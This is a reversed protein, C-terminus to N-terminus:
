QGPVMPNEIVLGRDEALVRNMDHLMTVETEVLTGSDDYLVRPEYLDLENEPPIWDPVSVTTGQDGSSISPNTEIERLMMPLRLGLDHLRHGELLLVEQRLLYLLRELDTGSAGDIQGKTVQTGSVAPVTVPGPRDLVLGDVLPAGPAFRIQIASTDPRTNLENDLREDGDVFTASDRAAALDVVQRMHAKATSPSGNALAVEALILRMEEASAVPIPTDEETYKPDLFDLRPLPQM